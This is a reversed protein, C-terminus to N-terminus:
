APYLYLSLTAFPLVASSTDIVERSLELSELLGPGEATSAISGALKYRGSPLLYGETTLAETLRLVFHNPGREESIPELQANEVQITQPARQLLEAHTARGPKIFINTLKPRLGQPSWEACLPDISFPAVLAGEAIMPTPDRPRGLDDFMSSEVMGDVRPEHTLTLGVAGVQAEPDFHKYTCVLPLRARLIRELLRPHLIVQCPGAQLAPSLPHSARKRWLTAGLLAWPLFSHPCFIAQRGDEFTHNIRVRGQLTVKSNAVGGQLNRVVRHQVHLALRGEVHSMGSLREGEHWTNDSMAYAIRQFRHPDGLSANLQPDFTTPAPHQARPQPPRYFGVSKEPFAKLLERTGERWQKASLPFRGWVTHGGRFIRIYAEGQPPPTLAQLQQDVFRWGRISLHRLSVEVDDAVGRLEHVFAEAQEEWRARTQALDAESPCKPLSPPHTM